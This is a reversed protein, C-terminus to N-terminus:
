RLFGTLWGVVWGGVWGSPAARGRRTRASSLTRSRSPSTRSSVSFPKSTTAAVPSASVNRAATACCEGSMTRVSTRMGGVNVSSPTARGQHHALLVRVDRHDHEALVHLLVVGGLQQGSPGLPHAVQELVPHGVHAVEELGHLAHGGAAGRQVGLDDGLEEGPSPALVRQGGQGGALVVDEPEHGLAPRVGADGGRQEDGLSGHLLV